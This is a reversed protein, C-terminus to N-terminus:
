LPSNRIITFKSKLKNVTTAYGESQWKQLDVIAIAEKWIDDQSEEVKDEVLFAYKNMELYANGYLDLATFFDNEMARVEIKCDIKIGKSLEINIEDAWENTIKRNKFKELGRIIKYFKKDEGPAVPYKQAASQWAKLREEYLKAYNTQLEPYHTPREEKSILVTLVNNITQLYTHTM